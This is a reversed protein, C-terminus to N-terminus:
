SGRLIEPFSSAAREVRTDHTNSVAAQFVKKKAQKLCCADREQRAPQIMMESFGWPNTVWKTRNWIMLCQQNLVLKGSNYKFLFSSKSFTFSDAGRFVPNGVHARWICQYLYALTLAATTDSTESCSASHANYRSLKPRLPIRGDRESMRMFRTACCLLCVLSVISSSSVGTQISHKGRTPEYYSIYARIVLPRWRLATNIYSDWTCIIEHM